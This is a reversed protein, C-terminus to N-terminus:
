TFGRGCINIWKCLVCWGCGYLDLDKERRWLITYRLQRSIKRRDGLFPQEDTPTHTHTHQGVMNSEVQSLLLVSLHRPLIVAAHLAWSLASPPPLLRKHKKPGGIESGRAGSQQQRRRRHHFLFRKWGHFFYVGRCRVSIKWIVYPPLEGRSSFLPAHMLRSVSQSVSALSGVSFLQHFLGRFHVSLKSDYIEMISNANIRASAAIAISSSAWRGHSLSCANNNISSSQKICNMASLTHASSWVNESSSSAPNRGSEWNYKIQSGLSRTMPWHSSNKETPPLPRCVNASLSNMGIFFISYLARLFLICCNNKITILLQLTLPLKHECQWYHAALLNLKM